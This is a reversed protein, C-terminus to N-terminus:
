VESKEKGEEKKSVTYVMLGVFLIGGLPILGTAGFHFGGCRTERATIKTVITVVGNNPVKKIRYFDPGLKELAFGDGVLDHEWGYLAGQHNVYYAFAGQAALVPRDVGGMRLKKGTDDYVHVIYSPVVAEIQSQTVEGALLMRQLDAPGPLLITKGPQPPIFGGKRYGTEGTGEVAHGPITTVLQPPSGGSPAVSPMNLTEVWVYVDRGDPAIPTLGKISISAKEEINSAQKFTMNRRVSNNAFVIPQASSAGQLQVLLCNDARRAGSQFAALDAGSVIWSFTNQNSTNAITGNPIKGSNGVTSNGPLASWLVSPDVGAEWDNPNSGWDAIRFTALILNKDIDMGSNNQPYAFFVNTPPSLSSGSAQFLILQPDPTSTGPDNNYTGISTLALSVGATKCVPDSTGTSFQYKQWTSPDPYVNQFGVQTIVATTPWALTVMPNTPTATIAQFWMNFNSGTINLSSRPIRVEVAWSNADPTNPDDKNTWVRITSTLWSPLSSLPPTGAALAPWASLQFVAGFPQDAQLNNSKLDIGVVLIGTTTDAANPDQIAFYLLSNDTTGVTTHSMRWSLYVYSSDQLGRFDLINSVGDGFSVDGAGVWRPDNLSQYYACGPPPSAGECAGSSGPEEWWDPATYNAPIGTVPGLCTQASALCTLTLIAVYLGAGQFARRPTLTNGDNQNTM